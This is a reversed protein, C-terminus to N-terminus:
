LVQHTFVPLINWVFIKRPKVQQQSPSVEAICMLLCFTYVKGWVFTKNLSCNMFLITQVLQLLQTCFSARLPLAINAIFRLLPYSIYVHKHIVIMTPNAYSIPLRYTHKVNFREKSTQTTSKDSTTPSGMKKKQSMTLHMVENRQQLCMDMKFHLRTVFLVDRFNDTKAHQVEQLHCILKQHTIIKTSLATYNLIEATSKKQYQFRVLLTFILFDTDPVLRQGANNTLPSALFLDDDVTIPISQCISCCFYRATAVDHLSYPWQNPTSHEESDLFM